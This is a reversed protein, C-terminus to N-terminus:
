RNGRKVDRKTVELFRHYQDLVRPTSADRMVVFSTRAVATEGSRIDRGFLGLYTSYHSAVGDPPNMNYSCYIVFCDEPRGMLVVAPGQKDRQRLSIPAALYRSVSWQVPHLGLEWRGDFVMGLSAWDKPFCLYTGQTLPSVDVPMFAPEGANRPGALYVSGDFGDALYSGVFLEFKPLDEHATVIFECTMVEPGSCHYKAVLDFPLKDEAPWQWKVEVTGDNVLTATKPSEWLISGYRKNTALARYVMFIGLDGKKTLEQGSSVDIMSLIGQAKGETVLKGRLLHSDFSFVGNEEAKFHLNRQPGPEPGSAAGAQAMAMGSGILTIVMSSLLLCRGQMRKHSTRVTNM